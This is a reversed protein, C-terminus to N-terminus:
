HNVRINVYVIGDEIGDCVFMKINNNWETKIEGQEDVHCLSLIVYHSCNYQFKININLKQQYKWTDDYICM